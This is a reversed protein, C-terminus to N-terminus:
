RVVNYRITQRFPKGDASTALASMNIGGTYPSTDLDYIWLGSQLKADGVKKLNILIEVKRVKAMATGALRVLGSGSANDKPLAWIVLEEAGIAAAMSLGAANFVALKARPQHTLEGNWFTLRKGGIQVV